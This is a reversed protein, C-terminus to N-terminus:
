FRLLLVRNLKKCFLFHIVVYNQLEPLFKLGCFFQMLRM